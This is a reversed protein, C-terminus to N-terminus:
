GARARRSGPSREPMSPGPSATTSARSRSRAQRRAGCCAPGSATWHAPRWHSGAAVPRRRNSAGCTVPRGQVDLSWLEARPTRPHVWLLDVNGDRDVDRATVLRWSPGAPRAPEPAAVRSLAAGCALQYEIRQWQEDQWVLDARGDRDVDAVAALRAQRGAPRAALRVQVRATFTEDLLWVHAAGSEDQFALDVRGDVDFDGSGALRLGAGPTPRVRALRQPRARWSLAEIPAGPEAQTFWVARPEDREPGRTAPACAAPPLFEVQWGDRAPLASASQAEVQVRTPGAPLPLLLDLSEGSGHALLTETRVVLPAGRGAPPRARLRVRGARRLHLALHSAVRGAHSRASAPGARTVDLLAVDGRLRWLRLTGAAAMFELQTDHWARPWVQDTVLYAIQDWEPRVADALMLRAEAHALYGRYGQVRLPRARLFYVAWQQAAADAVDLTLAGEPLGEVLEGLARLRALDLGTPARTFRLGRQGPSLWAQTAVCATLGAAVLAGRAPWARACAEIGAWALFLAAWCGLSLLKYAGYHYDSRAVLWVAGLGHMVAVLALVRGPARQRILRWAGVLALLSLALGISTAGGFSSSGGAEEGGLGWYASLLNRQSALGAFRPGGPRPGTLSQLQWRLLRLLGELYPAVLLGLLALTAVAARLRRRLGLPRGAWAFALGLTYGAVFVPALEAYACLPAVALLATLAVRGPRADLRALAAWAAPLLALALAQDYNSFAMVHGLWGASVALVLYGGPRALGYARALAACGCVYVFLLWACYLGVVRQPDAPQTGSALLALWVASAHRTPTLARAYAHLVSLEGAPRALLYDADAVYAWGDGTFVGAFDRLGAVFHPGLVLAPLALCAWQLRSPRWTRSLGALALLAALAVVIPAARRVPVQALALLGLSWTGLALAAPAALLNLLSRPLRPALLRLLGQGVAVTLLALAAYAFLARM